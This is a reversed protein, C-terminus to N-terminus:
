AGAKKMRAEWAYVDEVFYKVRVKKFERTSYLAAYDRVGTAASIAALVQECQSATPAHM